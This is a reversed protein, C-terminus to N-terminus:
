SGWGDMIEHDDWIMYQPIRSFIEQMHPFKWYVRYYWRYLSLLYIDLSPPHLKGNRAYTKVLEDKNDQLWEWIDPFYKNDQCDVYVQDGGGI